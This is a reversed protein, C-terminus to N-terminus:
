FTCSVFVSVFWSAAIETSINQSTQQFTHASFQRVLPGYFNIEGSYYHGQESGLRQLFKLGIITDSNSWMRRIDLM